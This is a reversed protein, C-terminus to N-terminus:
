RAVLDIRESAPGAPMADSRATWPRRGDDAMLLFWMAIGAAIGVALMALPRVFVRVSGLSGGGSAGGVSGM